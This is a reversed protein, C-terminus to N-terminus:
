IEYRGTLQLIGSTSVACHTATIANSVGGFRQYNFELYTTGPVVQVGAHVLDQGGSGPACWVPVLRWEGTGLALANAAYPLGGIRLNGSATTQTFSVTNLNIAFEVMNGTLTYRGRRTAGYTVALDGPTAFTVAPTFTGTEYDIFEAAGLADTVAALVDAETDAAVRATLAAVPINVLGSGLAGIVSDFTTSTAVTLETALKTDVTM